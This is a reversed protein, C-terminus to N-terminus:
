VVTSQSAAKGAGLLRRVLALLGLCLLLVVAQRLFMAASFVMAASMPSVVTEPLHLHPINLGHCLGAVSLSVMALPGMRAPLSLGVIALAISIWYVAVMWAPAHPLWRSVVGVLALAQFLHFASLMLLARGPKRGLALALFVVIALHDWFAHGRNIMLSAWTGADGSPADAQAPAEPATMAVIEPLVYGRSTESPFIVQPRREKKGETGNLVILSVACAKDLAVKFDGTKAPLHGSWRALLHVEASTPTLPESSASDIAVIKWEPAIETDGVTVHLSRAVYEVAQRETKKRTAEDQEFFWSAPVPPLSTPQESLFLRPDVNVSFSCDRRASFESELVLTPVTHGHGVAAVLLAPLFFRLRHLM